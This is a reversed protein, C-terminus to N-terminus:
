WAKRGEVCVGAGNVVRAEREVERIGPIDSDCFGKQRVERFGANSMYRALSESDYMYKHSHFDKWTAYLKFIFNGQPRAVNRFGLRENLFDAPLAGGDPFKGSKGEFYHTVMAQLDPVVIRIVGGPKLVRLCDQLLEQAEARYLHELVHSGYIATISNAAFPLPKTLDHVLPRVNWHAGVNRRIVGVLELLKRISPHNSFWANWSGDVNIWGPPADPGCGLNVRTLPETVCGGSERTEEECSLPAARAASV